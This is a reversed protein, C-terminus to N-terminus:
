TESIQEPNKPDIKLARLKRYLHTREMGAIEALKGVSGDAMKLHYVLYNREFQERAERLPLNFNVSQQTQQSDSSIQSLAKEVEDIGIEQGNGLILLRQILNKLEKLNGPWPYNRLRNKSALDFERYPVNKSSALFSSFYNILDPIDEKRDRLPPVTIPIVNLLYYLEENFLKQKVRQQLDFSTSAIVRVNVSVPHRGFSPLFQQRELAAFLKAQIELPLIAIDDLFLTGPNAKELLGPEYEGDLEHGFLTSEMKETPISALNCAIFPATSRDSLHHIYRALSEKGSGTEGYLLVWTDHQALREAHERLTTITASRGIPEFHDQDKSSNKEIAVKKQSTELGRSVTLLLKALAIPKEIFDAAGLRTAEVATEVTGHGSMMIIPFTHQGSSTWEKLLSVGDIDPMWIDLLVLDPNFQNVQSRATAGNEATHVTYGEDELIEQVLERIDPEDDVVLVKSKIM